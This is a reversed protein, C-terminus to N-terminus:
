EGQPADILNRLAWTVALAPEDGTVRTKQRLLYWTMPSTLVRVLATLRDRELRPLRETEQGLAREIAELRRQGTRRSMEHGTSSTILSEVIAANADFRGFLEPIFAILEASSTAPMQSLGLRHDIEEWVADLLDSRAPFHRYVTRPAIGAARGVSENSMEAAPQEALVAVAAQVIRDRTIATQEQRLPSSYARKKKRPMPEVNICNTAMLNL